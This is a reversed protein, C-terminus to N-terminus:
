LLQNMSVRDDMLAVNRVRQAVSIPSVLVSAHVPATRINPPGKKSVNAVM